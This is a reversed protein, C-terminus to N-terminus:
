LKRAHLRERKAKKIIAQAKVILQYERATEANQLLDALVRQADEYRHENEIKESLKM